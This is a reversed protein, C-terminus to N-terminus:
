TPREQVGNTMSPDDLFILFLASLYAILNTHWMWLIHFFTKMYKNVNEMCIKEEAFIKARLFNQYGRANWSFLNFLKPCQCKLFARVTYRTLKETVLFNRSIKSTFNLLLFQCKGRYGITHIVFQCKTYVIWVIGTHELRINVRTDLQIYMHRFIPM